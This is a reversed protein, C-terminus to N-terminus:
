RSRTDQADSDWRVIDLRPGAPEAKSDDAPEVVPPAFEARYAEVIIEPNLGVEAAYARLYGRTFLGGPVEEFSNAELARLVSHSIKTARAIDDLSLERANRARQLEGGIDM